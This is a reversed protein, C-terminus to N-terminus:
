NGWTQHASGHQRLLQADGDHERREIVRVKKV